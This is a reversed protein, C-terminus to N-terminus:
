RPSNASRTPRTMYTVDFPLHAFHKTATAVFGQKVYGAQLEFHQAIISLNVAQSGREHARSLVHQVLQRGIGRNRFTPLIALREMEVADNGSNPHLAVCGVVDGDFEALYYEVGREFDRHVRESTYNSPHTPCNEPSLAFRDAVDRFGRRIIDALLKAEEETAAAARIVSVKCVLSRVGCIPLRVEISNPSPPEIM